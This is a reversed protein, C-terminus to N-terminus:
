YYYSYYNLFDLGSGQSDIPPAIPVDSVKLGEKLAQRLKLELVLRSRLDPVSKLIENVDKKLNKELEKKKSPDQEAQLISTIDEPQSVPTLVTLQPVYAPPEDILEKKEDVPQRGTWPISPGNDSNYPAQPARPRNIGESRETPVPTGYVPQSSSTLNIISSPPHEYSIDGQSCKDLKKRLECNKLQNALMNNSINYDDISKPNKLISKLKNQKERYEIRERPYELEEDLIDYVERALARKQRSDSLRKKLQSIYKDNKKLEKETINEKAINKKIKRLKKEIQSQSYKIKKKEDISKGKLQSLIKRANKLFTEYDQQGYIIKAEHQADQWLGDGLINYELRDQQDM